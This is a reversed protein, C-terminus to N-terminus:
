GCAGVRGCSTGLDLDQPVLTSAKPKVELVSGIVVNPRYTTIGKLGNIWAETYLDKFEEFPYHEPVNVTKSIAADIYPQIAASMRMHDLAQMELATVFCAPLM